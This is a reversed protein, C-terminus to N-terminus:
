HLIHMCSGWGNCCQRLKLAQNHSFAHVRLAPQSKSLLLVGQLDDVEAQPPTLHPQTVLVRMRLQQQQNHQLLRLLQNPPRHKSTWRHLV